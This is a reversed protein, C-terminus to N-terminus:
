SFYGDSGNESVNGRSTEGFFLYLFIGRSTEAIFFTVDIESEVM